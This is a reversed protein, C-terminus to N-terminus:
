PRATEPWPDPLTPAQADDTTRAHSIVDKAKESAVSTAERAKEMATEYADSGQIKRITRNIQEYRERGAKAGLYYGTAFGTVLGFRFRM